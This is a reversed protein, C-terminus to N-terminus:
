HFNFVHAFGDTLAIRDRNIGDKRDQKKLLAHAQMLEHTFDLMENPDGVPSHHHLAIEKSIDKIQRILGSTPLDLHNSSDLGVYVIGALKQPEPTSNSTQQAVLTSQYYKPEQKKIPEPINGALMDRSKLESDLIELRIAPHNLNPYADDSLRRKWETKEQQLKSSRRLSTQARLISQNLQNQRQKVIQQKKIPNISKDQILQGIKEWESLFEGIFEKLRDAIYRQELLFGKQKRSTKQSIDNNVGSESKASFLNKMWRSIEM